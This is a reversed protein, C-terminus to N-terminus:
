LGEHNEGCNYLEEKDKKPRQTKEGGGKADLMKQILRAREKAIEIRMEKDRKSDYLCIGDVYTQYVKAYVSLPNDTWLVLDADKGIKISGMRDDLHLLKAPNLTVMKLADEQSVGGYMVAKAAEQNLRRAMEADDSNYATVIGMENLIAGNYPIADRVEFKYAWWDSFTSAGVGHSKMKDAVKYGELIHTFTNIRFGMSDAVHMLMNIESQVYSHCTIFRKSNLIEVLTELELDKRPKLASIKQKKSLSNYTRWAIDYEKARIFSDYFIQEVGMRTQPYRITMRDGWNSQKVNEGLAFKIFGDANKIKMEEPSSGWRFKIIGSQGGIPNASGHLLQAATVGGALQRYINIDDSRIVDSISVEASVAQGSENVGGSIAIHSHEDIIGATLHFGAGDIIKVGEKAKIENGVSIIKGNEILVDTGKLVGREENTWVTAGQILVAQSVPKKSWGYAMNPFYIEGIEAKENDQNSKQSDTNEDISRLYKANWSVWRGDSLTGSGNWNGGITAGSLSVEKGYSNFRLSILNDAINVTAKITDVEYDLESEKKISSDSLIIKASYSNNDGTLLLNSKLGDFELKYNGSYNQNSWKKLEYREGKIWNEYIETEDDFMEGSTILFNALKGKELSGTMKEVGLMRAPAMTLAELAKDESLGHDISKRLQKWFVTKDKLEITSISFDISNREFVEPNTPALEWHKMKKLSVRRADFADKVEYPNPFNIPLIFSAGTNKMEKIRQYGDGGDVIIYQVGFEDGVKDARLVTLKDGADFIQPLRRLDNFAALSLNIEDKNANSSYWEADLYTQRLLAISGMLSSPYDQSSSGKSFSYNSAAETELILENEKGHGLLVFVSSGMVIGDNPVSLVAGFGLKTLEESQKKNYRFSVAGSTEPHIAENWSFAGHKGSEIKPGHLMKKPKTVPQGYETYVDIFSPYVYLGNLDVQVAANPVVINQGIDQILGNQVLMVGNRIINNHDQYITAGTFAYIPSDKEYVGNVPFTTQCFGINAVFLLGVLAIRKM